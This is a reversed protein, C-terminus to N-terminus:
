TFLLISAGGENRICFCVSRHASEWVQSMLRSESFYGAASAPSRTSNSWSNRYRHAYDDLDTVDLSSRPLTDIWRTPWSSSSTIRYFCAIAPGSEIWMRQQWYNRLGPINFKFTTIDVSKGYTATGVMFKIESVLLRKGTCNKLDSGCTSNALGAEVGDFIWLGIRLAINLSSFSLSIPSPETPPLLFPVSSSSSGGGGRSSSRRM